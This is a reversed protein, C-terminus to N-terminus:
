KKGALDRLTIEKKASINKRRAILRDLTDLQQNTIKFHKNSRSESLKENITGLLLYTKRKSKM